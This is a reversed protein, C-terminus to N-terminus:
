RTHRAGVAGARALAKFTSVTLPLPKATAAFLRLNHSIIDCSGGIIPEFAGLLREHRKFQDHQQSKESSGQQGQQRYWGATFIAVGVVPLRKKASSVPLRRM